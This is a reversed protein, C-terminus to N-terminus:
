SCTSAFPRRGHVWSFTYLHLFLPYDLCRFFFVRPRCSFMLIFLTNTWVKICVTCDFQVSVSQRWMKWGNMEESLNRWPSEYSLTWFSYFLYCWISYRYETVVTSECARDCHIQQELSVRRATWLSSWFRETTASCGRVRESEWNGASLCLCLYSNCDCM